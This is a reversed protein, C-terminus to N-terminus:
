SRRPSAKDRQPARLQSQWPSGLRRYGSGNLTPKGYKHCITIELFSRLPPDESDILKFLADPTVNPDGKEMGKMGKFMQTELDAYIDLGTAIERIV